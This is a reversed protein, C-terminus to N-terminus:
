GIVGLLPWAPLTIKRKNSVIENTSFRAPNTQLEEIKTFRSNRSTTTYVFRYLPLYPNDSIPTDTCNAPSIVGFPYQFGAGMVM